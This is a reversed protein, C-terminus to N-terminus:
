KGVAADAKGATSLGGVLAGVVGKPQQACPRGLRQQRAAPSKARSCTYSVLAVGVPFTICYNYEQLTVLKCVYMRVYMCVCVCVYM